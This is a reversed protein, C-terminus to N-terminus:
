VPSQAKLALHGTENVSVVALRGGETRRLRNFSAYYPAFHIIRPLGLINALVTNIPLGHTFVAVHAEPLSPDPLSAELAGLVAAKFAVPDAGCYRVPDALFKQWEGEGQARLTDTSRYRLAGRDAEAWGDIVTIPLRLREALPQATQYARQLPSAIIATVGDNMLLDAAARAQAWGEELLPPDNARTPHQEDPRGHRILTLRMNM